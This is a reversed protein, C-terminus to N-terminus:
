LERSLRKNEPATLDLGVMEAMARPEPLADVWGSPMFGMHKRIDDYYRQVEAPMEDDARMKWADKFMIDEVLVTGETRKMERFMRAYHQLAKRTNADNTM